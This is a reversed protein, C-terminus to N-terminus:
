FDAPIPLPEVCQAGEVDAKDTLILRKSEMLWTLVASGDTPFILCRMSNNYYAGEFHSQAAQVIKFSNRKDYVFLMNRGEAVDLVYEAATLLCM